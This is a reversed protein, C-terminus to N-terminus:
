VAGRMKPDPRAHFNIRDVILSTEYRTEGDREYRDDKIRGEASILDGVKLYTEVYKRRGDGFITLSVPYPDQVREGNEDKRDYNAIARLKTVRELPTIRAINGVFTFSSLGPM